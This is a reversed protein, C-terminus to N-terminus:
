GFFKKSKKSKKPATEELVEEHEPENIEQLFETEEVVEEEQVVPEVVEQIFKKDKKPLPM